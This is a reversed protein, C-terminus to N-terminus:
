IKKSFNLKQSAFRIKKLYIFIQEGPPSGAITNRYIAPNHAGGQCGRGWSATMARGAPARGFPMLELGMAAFNLWTGLGDTSQGIEGNVIWARRRRSLEGDVGLIIRRLDLSKTLSEDMQPASEFNEDSRAKLSRSWAEARAQGDRGCIAPAVEINSFEWEVSQPPDDERARCFKPFIPAYAFRPHV